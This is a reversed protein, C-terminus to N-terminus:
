FIVLQQLIRYSIAQLQSFIPVGLISLLILGLFVFHGYRANYELYPQALNGPLFHGLIYHGDLPGLPILNFLMLLLNISALTIFFMEAEPRAFWESGSEVGLVYINITIFALLLNM